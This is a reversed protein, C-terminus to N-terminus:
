YHKGHHNRLKELAQRKVYCALSESIGIEAGASILTQGDIVVRKIIHRERPELCKLLHNVTDEQEIEDVEQVGAVQHERPNGFDDNGFQSAKCKEAGSRKGTMWIYKKRLDDLIQGAARQYCSTSFAGRDPDFKSANSIMGLAAGSLAESLSLRSPYKSSMRSAISTALGINDEVLKKQADTLRKIAM